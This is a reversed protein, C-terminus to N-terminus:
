NLKDLSNLQKMLENQAAKSWKKFNSAINPNTTHLLTRMGGRIDGLNVYYSYDFALVEFMLDLMEKSQPDQMFRLSMASEYYAPRVIRNSNYAISEMVAGLVSQRAEDGIAASVGFATVQDQVFTRYEKQEKTLKPMPVIGYPIDALSGIRREIGLFQTTAMLGEEEAFKEIIHYKGIYDLDRGAFIYSGPSNYLKSVKDAMDVMSDLVDDNIVRVGNEDRLSFHVDSAACYGDVSCYNGSIFGYFDDEDALSDGNSDVYVSNSIKYQYDLTWEGREVVDYLSELQQEEFLGTHFITLYTLRFLSLAAPSTAVFQMGEEGFTAIENYDQSWYYKDTDIYEVDNLNLYIGKLALPLAKWSAMTFIDVSKDGAQVIRQSEAEVDNDHNLKTMVLKVKLQNEVTLNREYVADSIVGFGLKESTLEDNRGDVDVCMINVETNGFDLDNPLDSTYNSDLTEVEAVTTKETSELTEGSHETGTACSAMSMLMLGALLLCLFKKM